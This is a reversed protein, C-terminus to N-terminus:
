RSFILFSKFLHDGHKKLSYHNFLERICHELPPHSGPDQPKTKITYCKNYLYIPQEEYLISSLYIKKKGLFTIPQRQNVKIFFNSSSFHCMLPTEELMLIALEVRRWTTLSQLPSYIMLIKFPVLSFCSDRKQLFVNCLLIYIYLLDRFM